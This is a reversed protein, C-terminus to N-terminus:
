SGLGTHFRSHGSAFPARLSEQSRLGLGPVTVSRAVDTEKARGERLEAPDTEAMKRPTRGRRSARLFIFADKVSSRPGSCLPALATSKKELIGFRVLQQVNCLRSRSTGSDQRVGACM